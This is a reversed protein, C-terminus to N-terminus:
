LCCLHPQQPLALSPVARASANIEERGAEESNGPAPLECGGVSHERQRIRGSDDWCQWSKSSDPLLASSGRTGLRSNRFVGPSNPLLPISRLIPPLEKGAETVLHAKEVSSWRTNAGLEHALCPSLEGKWTGEM